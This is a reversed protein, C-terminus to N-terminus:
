EWIWLALCAVAGSAENAMWVLPSADGCGAEYGEEQGAGWIRDLALELQPFSSSLVKRRIGAEAAEVDAVIEM